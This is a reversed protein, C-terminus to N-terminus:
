ILPRLRRQRYGITTARLPPEDRMMREVEECEAPTPPEYLILGRSKRLGYLVVRFARDPHIDMAAIRNSASEMVRPLDRTTRLENARRM